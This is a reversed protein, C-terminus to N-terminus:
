DNSKGRFFDIISVIFKNIRPGMAVKMKKRFNASKPMWTGSFHHITYTNDTITTLLTRPDKPCFYESPFFTFDKITQKTNNLKLGNEKASKTITEVNTTLCQVGNEDIFHANDYFSLQDGIFENGKEGAMIGTLVTNYNEFGSFGNCELFQDLPKIVEVDTDMYIGGHHFIAYLRVYDTIFAWKKNEYAEKTYQNSNVDFKTEDWLVLEYDPCFKKWSEIYEKASDPLPNGGFWCYHIRKPIM